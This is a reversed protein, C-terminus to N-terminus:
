GHSKEPADLPPVWTLMFDARFEEPRLGDWSSSINSANSGTEIGLITGDTFNILLCESGHVDKIDERIGYSVEKVTKGAMRSASRISAFDHVHKGIHPLREKADNRKKASAGTVGLLSEIANLLEKLADLCLCLDNTFTSFAAFREASPRVAHAAARRQKSVLSTAQAFKSPAGLQPLLKTISDITRDSGFNAQKGSHDAIKTLCNKDIGDILFGYLTNHADQYRHTNEAAPFSLSANIAYKFLPVGVIEKTLGNITNMTEAIYHRPGNDVDWSGELYRMAWKLFRDDTGQTWAPNRFHFGLWKDHHRTAKELDPLWLVLALDGNALSRYGFRINLYENSRDSEELAEYYSRTLTLTGEFSDTEIVYKEPENRYSALAQQDFYGLLHSAPAIRKELEAITTM